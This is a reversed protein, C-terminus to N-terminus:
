LGLQRVPAEVACQARDTYCFPTYEDYVRVREDNTEAEVLWPSAKVCSSDAAATSHQQRDHLAIDVVARILQRGVGSRRESDQVHLMGIAGYPQKVEWAVLQDFRYAGYSGASASSTSSALLLNHVMTATSPSSYPWHSAIVASTEITAPLRAIRLSSPTRSSTGSTAPPLAFPYDWHNCADYELGVQEDAHLAEYWVKVEDVLSRHCRQIGAFEVERTFDVYQQLMALATSPRTTHFSVNYGDKQPLTAADITPSHHHLVAPLLQSPQHAAVTLANAPGYIILVTTLADHSLSDAYISIHLHPRFSTLACRLTHFVKDSHPLHLRQVAM